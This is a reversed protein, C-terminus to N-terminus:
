KHREFRGKTIDLKNDKKGIKGISKIDRGFTYLKKGFVDKLHDVKHQFFIMASYTVLSIVVGLATTQQDGSTVGVAITGTGAAVGLIGTATTLNQFLDAKEGPTMAPKEKEGPQPKKLEVKNNLAM